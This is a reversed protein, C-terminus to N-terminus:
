HCGGVQAGHTRFPTCTTGGTCEADSTCMQIETMAACSTACRTGHFGSAYNGCGTTGLVLTGMGCCVQGSPCDGPDQCQWDVATGACPTASPECTATGSSPECCHQTGHDCYLSAGADGMGFPCYITATSGAHPPHLTSPASCGADTVPAGSDVPSGADHGTTTGTDVPTPGADHPAPGSDIGPSGTDPNTRTSGSGCAGLLLLSAFLSLHRHHM